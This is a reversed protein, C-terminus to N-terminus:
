LGPPLSRGQLTMWARRLHHLLAVAGVVIYLLHLSALTLQLGGERIRADLSGDM